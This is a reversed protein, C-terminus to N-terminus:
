KIKKRTKTTVPNYTINAEETEFSESLSNNLTDTSSMDLPKLSDESNRLYALEETNRHFESFKEERSFGDSSKIPCM